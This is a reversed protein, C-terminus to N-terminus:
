DFIKQPRTIGSTCVQLVNALLSNDESTRTDNWIWKTPILQNVLRALASIRASETCDSFPIIHVMPIKYNRIEWRSIMVFILNKKISLCPSHSTTFYSTGTNERKPFSQLHCQSLVCCQVEPVAREAVAVPEVGGCVTSAQQFDALLPSFVCM